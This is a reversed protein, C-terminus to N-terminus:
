RTKTRSQSQSARSPREAGELSASSSTGRCSTATSRRALGRGRSSQASRAIRAASMRSRGAFSRICRSTVGPVTRRRCRRRTVVQDGPLPGIRAPRSPRRDASLDGREDLSEGGLVVEPPVLPDLALEELEAMLNACGGDAPDELGQLDRRCRFPAGVRGPPRNQMGLCRRHEGGVEEVDVACHGELAQVAQKDDFDAAAVQVNEAHGRVRVPRPGCLLDPVEQHVETVASRAEPEQNAVPGPLESIGEARGQGAGTDPRKLDRGSTRARVSIGFPEHEGGPGLDGVPQQDVALPM